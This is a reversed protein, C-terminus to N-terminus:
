YAKGLKLETFPMYGEPNTRRPEYAALHRWNGAGDIRWVGGDKEMYLGEDTPLEYVQTVTMSTALKDGIEMYFPGTDDGVVVNYYTSKESFEEFEESTMNFQLTGKVNEHNFTVNVKPM